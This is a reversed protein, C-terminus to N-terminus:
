KCVERHFTESSGPYYSPKGGTVCAHIALTGIHLMYGALCLLLISMIFMFREGRMRSLKRDLSPAFMYGALTAM